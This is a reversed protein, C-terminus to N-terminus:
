MMCTMIEWKEVVIEVVFAVFALLCGIILLGFAGMMHEMTLVKPETTGHKWEDTHDFERLWHKMLGAALIYRLKSDIAEKLYFEKKYYMVINITMLNEKLIKYPFTRHDRSYDIFVVSSGFMAVRKESSIYVDITAKVVERKTKKLQLHPYFQLIDINTEHVLVSYKKEVLEQISQVEKHRGDSQLFQYLSGQYISRLVLCLIIFLMLIFRAFNRKPLVTQQSGLVAILMNMVPGNVKEGFVFSRVQRFKHNIVLIVLLGIILTLLLLIWVTASFPQLMKETTTLKEGKPIIFVIPYSLYSESIDFLELRDAKLFFDGMAIDTQGQQVEGLTDTATGNKYVTGFQEQGERFKVHLTFNLGKQVAKIMEIEHGRHVVSGDAQIEEIAAVNENFTTLRVPCLNMNRFKELKCLKKTFSGNVFKSILKPTSDGCKQPDEFPEITFFALGDDEIKDKIIGYISYIHRKWMTDFIAHLDDVNGHELIILHFGSNKFWRGDVHPEFKKFEELNEIFFISFRKPEELLMGYKREIVRVARVNSLKKLIETKLVDYNDDYNRSRLSILNAGKNHYHKYFEADLIEFAKLLNEECKTLSKPLLNAAISTHLLALLLVVRLRM